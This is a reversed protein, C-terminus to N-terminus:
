RSSKSGCAQACPCTTHLPAPRLLHLAALRRRRRAARAHWASCERGDDPRVRTRSDPAHTQSALLVSLIAIAAAIALAFLPFLVTHPLTHLSAIYGPLLSGAIM